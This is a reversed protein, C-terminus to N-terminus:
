DAFNQTIPAMGADNPINPQTWCCSSHSLCLVFARPLFNYNLVPAINLTVIFPKPKSLNKVFVKRAKSKEM